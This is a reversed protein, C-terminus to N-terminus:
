RGDRWLADLGDLTPPLGLSAGDGALWAEFTEGGALSRAIDAFVTPRGTKEILFDAFGRAQIYFLREEVVASMGGGAPTYVLAIGGGAPMEPRETLARDLAPHERTLFTEHSLDVAALGADKALWHNKSAVIVHPHDGIFHSEVDVDEPARGM